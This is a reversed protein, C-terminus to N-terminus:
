CKNSINIITKFYTVDYFVGLIIFVNIWFDISPSLIAQTLRFM